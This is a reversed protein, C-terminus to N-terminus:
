KYTFCFEIMRHWIFVYTLRAMNSKLQSNIKKFGPLFIKVCSFLASVKQSVDALEGGNSDSIGSSNLIEPPLTDLFDEYSMESEQQLLKLEENQENEDLDEEEKRITEEDDSESNEPVFNPSGGIHIFILFNCKVTNFFLHM